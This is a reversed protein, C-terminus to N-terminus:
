KKESGVQIVETVITTRYLSTTSAIYPDQQLIFLFYSFFLRLFYYTTQDIHSADVFLSIIQNIITKLYM